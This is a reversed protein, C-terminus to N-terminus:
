SCSYDADPGSEVYKDKDDYLTFNHPQNCCPCGADLPSKGVIREWDDAAERLSNCNPKRARTALAGLWRVDGRDDRTAFGDSEDAWYVDWGAAELNKWDDDDLWWYGGSNNSSYEVYM